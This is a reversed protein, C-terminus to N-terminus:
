GLVGIEGVEFSSPRVSLKVGLCRVQTGERVCACVCVCMRM